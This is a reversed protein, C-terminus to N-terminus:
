EGPLAEVPVGLWECAEEMSHFVQVNRGLSEVFGRYVQARAFQLDTPAIIASRAKSQFLISNAMLRFDAISLKTPNANRLDVLQVLSPNFDPDDAIAVRLQIFEQLSNEGEVQMYILHYPKLIAFRIPM